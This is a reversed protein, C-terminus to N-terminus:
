LPSLSWWVDTHRSSSSFAPAELGSEPPFIRKNKNTTTQKNHKRSRKKTKNNTQQTKKITKTTQKNHKLNINEKRPEVLVPPCGLSFLRSQLNAQIKFFFFIILDKRTTKDKKKWKCCYSLVYVNNECFLVINVKTHVNGIVQLVQFLVQVHILDFAFNMM